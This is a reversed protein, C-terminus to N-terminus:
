KKEGWEKVTDVFERTGSPGEMRDKRKAIGGPVAACYWTRTPIKARGSAKVIEVWRCDLEKGGVKLTEQGESLQKEDPELTPRATPVTWESSPAGTDNKQELVA